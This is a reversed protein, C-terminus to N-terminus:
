ALVGAERREAQDEQWAPGFPGYELEMSLRRHGDECLTADLPDERGPYDPHALVRAGCSVVDFCDEPFDPEPNGNFVEVLWACTLFTARGREDVEVLHGGALKRYTTTADTTM